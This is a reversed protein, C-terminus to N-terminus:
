PKTASQCSKLLAEAERKTFEGWGKNACLLNKDGLKATAVFHFNNEGGLQSASEWLIADPKDVHFKVLTDLEDSSAEAKAKAVAGENEFEYRLEFQQDNYSITLAAGGNSSATAGAPVKLTLGKYRTEDPDTITAGIDAMETLAIPTTPAPKTAEKDATKAATTEGSAKNAKDDGKCGLALLASLSLVYITTPTKMTVLAGYVM